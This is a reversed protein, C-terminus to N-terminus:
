RPRLVRRLNSALRLSRKFKRRLRRLWLQLKRDAKIAFSVVAVRAASWGNEAL